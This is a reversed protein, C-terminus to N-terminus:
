KCYKWSDPSVTGNNRSSTINKVYATGQQTVYIDGMSIIEMNGSINTRLNQDATGVASSKLIRLADAKINIDSDLAKVAKDTSIEVVGDSTISGIALERNKAELYIPGTSNAATNFGKTGVSVRIPDASTGFNKTIQVSMGAASLDVSQNGQRTVTGAVLTLDDGATITETLNIDM